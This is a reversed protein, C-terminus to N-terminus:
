GAQVDFDVAEIGYNMGLIHLDLLEQILVFKHLQVILILNFGVPVGNSEQLSLESFGLVGPLGLEKDDLLLVVLDM